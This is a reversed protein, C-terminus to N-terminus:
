SHQLKHVMFAWHLNKPELEQAKQFYMIAEKKRRSRMCTEGLSELASVSIPYEKLNAEFVRIADRFRKKRRLEVGLHDLQQENFIMGPDNQKKLRLYLELAAGVGSREVVARLTDLLAWPYKYPEMKHTPDLIHWGIDTVINNSNSLVVVGVKNKKDIGLFSRYGGTGGDKFLICKGDDNSLTWGMTTYTDNGDKKAQLVHTMEMAPLLDTQTFGLNAAAFTLMDNMDSRLGGGGALPFDWASVPQGGDSYGHAVRRELRAPVAFFTHPMHLPLCIREDVLAELEEKGATSLIHGLLSYGINSYQWRANVDRSLEFGSIFEYLQKTDYDAYPDDLDKPDLNSSTRPLGSRNTSLSLLTIEQGNRSPAKVDAPLYKSVPDNLEVEHKLGMDALLLSTFVKTISGIEYITSSDPRVPNRDSVRGEAFLRRGHADVVGVIISKSRKAAVEQAIIAKISDAPLQGSASYAVVLLIVIMLYGKM